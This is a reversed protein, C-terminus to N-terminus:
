NSRFAVSLEFGLITFYIVVIGIVVPIRNLDTMRFIFVLAGGIIAFRLVLGVAWAKLKARLDGHRNAYLLLVAPAAAILSIICGVLFPFM